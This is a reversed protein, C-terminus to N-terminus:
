RRVGIADCRLLNQQAREKTAEGLPHARWREGLSHRLRRARRRIMVYYPSIMFLCMRENALMVAATASSRTETSGTAAWAETGSPELTGEFLPATM